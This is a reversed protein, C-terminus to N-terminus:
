VHRLTRQCQKRVVQEVRQLAPYPGHEQELEHRTATLGQLLQQAVQKVRKVLFSPKIGCSSALSEWHSRTVQDPVNQDGVCLALHHDIRAIARTCVLDYLPALRVEGGPLHLLSLNKAHGDSNGALVNFIQWGILHQLDVAPDVSAELLLRYCDSFSPGGSLEYKKDHGLGLAQCFDEQHLRHVEGRDDWTRDYREIVVYRLEGEGHLSLNVTPLGALRALRTTFAEYAPVHRFHELEFKLIHSSPAEGLPLFFRQERLLLPLKDQAGALSLRPHQVTPDVARVRGREAVLRQLDSPSLPRYSSDASPTRQAPLISLAGACEGGIARLLEFDTNAIKLENVIRDRLGGEPLLNAFFRHAVGAEAKYPRRTLPLSLSLAFGGSDIWDDDYCFGIMGVPNQLLHGALRQEVWVTLTDHDTM